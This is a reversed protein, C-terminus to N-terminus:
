SSCRCPTVGITNALNTVFCEVARFLKRGVHLDVLLFKLITGEIVGGSSGAAAGCHGCTSRGLRNVWEIRSQWLCESWRCGCLWLLLLLEWRYM